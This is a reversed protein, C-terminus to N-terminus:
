SYELFRISSFFVKYFLSYRFGSLPKFASKAHLSEGSVIGIVSPEDFGVPEAPAALPLHLRVQGPALDVPVDGGPVVVEALVGLQDVEEPLDQLPPLPQVPQLHILLLCRQYHLGDSSINAPGQVNWSGALKAMRQLSSFYM